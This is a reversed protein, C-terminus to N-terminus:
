HRELAIAQWTRAFAELRPYNEELRARLAEDDMLPDGLSAQWRRLFEVDVVNAAATEYVTGADAISWAKLFQQMRAHLVFFRRMLPEIAAIFDRQPLARPLFLVRPAG